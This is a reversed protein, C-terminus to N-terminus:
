RGHTDELLAARRQLARAHVQLAPVTQEHLAQAQPLRAPAPAPAQQPVPAGQPTPLGAPLVDQLFESYDPAGAPLADHLRHLAGRMGELGSYVDQAGFLESPPLNFIRALAADTDSEACAFMFVYLARGDASVLDGDRKAVCARLVDLHALHPQITLRLLAHTLRRHSTRELMDQVHAVFEPLPVYGRRADPMFANRAVSFQPNM